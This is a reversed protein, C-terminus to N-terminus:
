GYFRSIVLLQAFLGHAAALAVLVAGVPRSLRRGAGLAAAAVVAGYLPLFPLLYRAQEFAFGTNRRYRLGLFGISALLGGVLVAYVLLEPLRRRLTGRDRWAALGALLLVPVAVALAVRYVWLDFATDLWGFRGILGQFWTQWPPFYSFQDNMFPLRPMYLQWTYGLQETLTIPAGSVADAGAATRAAVEVGGGFASRDWVWLNLAVYGSVAAGPIALAAGTALAVSRREGRRLERGALIAIALVAGPLLAVFNLKGLCGVALILGFGVGLAPTLGRRFARAIAFFLAASATFLLVDPTVGSGIFGFVPQFAVALAGVTWTWPQSFLERLFLYVFVVTLASLLASMIRMLWLRDLLSKWPSALYGLSEFAYFLPPQNSSEVIGGGGVRGSETDAARHAGRNQLETLAVRDRPRGVVSSFALGNLVHVEDPSFVPAGPKNLIRGTEAFYQLYAVHGTEDPVHFPPTVVSWVLANAFAIVACWRAAVPLRRM